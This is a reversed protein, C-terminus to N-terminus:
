KRKSFKTKQVSLPYKRLTPSTLYCTYFTKKTSILTKKISPNLFNAQYVSDATMRFSLLDYYIKKGAQNADM